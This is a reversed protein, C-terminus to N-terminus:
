TNPNAPMATAAAPIAFNSKQRKKTRNRTASTPPKTLRPAQARLQGVRPMASPSVRRVSLMAIVPAPPICQMSLFTRLLLGSSPEHTRCSDDCDDQQDNPNNGETILANSVRRLLFDDIDTRNLSGLLFVFRNWQRWDDAPYLKDSSHNQEDRIPARCLRKM